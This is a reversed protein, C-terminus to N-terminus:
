QMIIIGIIVYQQWSCALIVAVLDFCREEIALRAALMMLLLSSAVGLMSTAILFLFQKNM